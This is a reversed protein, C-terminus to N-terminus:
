RTEEKSSSFRVQRLLWGLLAGLSFMLIAAMAAIFSTLRAPLNVLGLLFMVLGSCLAGTLLLLTAGLGWVVQPGIVVERQRQQKLTTSLPQPVPNRHAPGIARGSVVNSGPGDSNLRAVVVTINDPGGRQNALRVLRECAAQVDTETLLVQQIEVESVVGSLGDTCLLLIDNPQVAQVGREVRVLLSNGLSQTLVHRRPHHLAADAAIRGAAVQEAVWTHDRTLMQIRDNRLLYARSDGVHGWFLRGNALLAVTATTGMDGLDSHGVSMRCLRENVQELLEKLVVLYYDPHQPSYAVYQRYAPSCFLGDLAEVLTQSAVDGAKHGGMGDAVALLATIEPVVVPATLVLYSDENLQRQRGPDSLYGITLGFKNRM